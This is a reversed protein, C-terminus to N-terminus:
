ETSKKMLHSRDLLQQVYRDVDRYDLVSSGKRAIIVIDAEYAIATISRRMVERLLRKVRNRVVANGVKKSVSFGVRSSRRSTAHRRILYLVFYQNAFSKGKQFVKRFDQNHRLRHRKLSLKGKVKRQQEDLAFVGRFFVAPM